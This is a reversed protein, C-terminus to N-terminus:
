SALLNGAAGKFERLAGSHRGETSCRVPGKVRRTYRYAMLAIGGLGMLSLTQPEAVATFEFNPGILAVGDPGGQSPFTFGGGRFAEGFLNILPDTVTDARAFVGSASFLVPGGPVSCGIRYVRDAHLLTPPILDFQFEGNIWGGVAPDQHVYSSVLLTGNADWLGIPMGVGRGDPAQPLSVSLGMLGSPYGLATVILDARPSFAWGATGDTVYGLTGHYALIATSAELTAYHLVCVAVTTLILRKVSGRHGDAQRLEGSRGSLAILHFSARM